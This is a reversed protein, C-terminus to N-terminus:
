LRLHNYGSAHRDYGVTTVRDLADTISVHNGYADYGYETRPSESLGTAPNIVAPQVVATLWNQADYEFQTTQGVADTEVIKRDFDDYDATIFSGDEFTTM